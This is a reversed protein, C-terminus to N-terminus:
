VPIYRLNDFVQRADDEDETQFIIVGDYKVTYGWVKNVPDYNHNAFSPILERKLTISKNTYFSMKEM